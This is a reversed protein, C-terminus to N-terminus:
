QPDYDPDNESDKEESEEVMPDEEPDEALFEGPDEIPFKKPDEEKSEDDILDEAADDVDNGVPDATPEAFAPKPPPVVQIPVPALVDRHHIYIDHDEFYKRMEGFSKFIPIPSAPRCYLRVRRTYVEMAARNSFVCPYTETVEHYIRGSYARESEGLCQRFSAVTQNWHTELDIEQFEFRM